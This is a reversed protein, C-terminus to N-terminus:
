PLFLNISWYRECGGLMQGINDEDPGFLIPWETSYCSIAACKKLLFARQMGYPAASFIAEDLQWTEANNAAPTLLEWEREFLATATARDEPSALYNHIFPFPMDTLAVKAPKDSASQEMPRAGLLQWRIAGWCPILAYPLEEYYKLIRTHWFLKSCEFAIHHDIHGGVGLPFFLEAPQLKEFLARIAKAVAKELLKEQEPLRHHFLITSFDKYRKSRFPADTFGLHLPHAGLSQLAQLDDNKRKQYLDKAKNVKESESFLTAVFVELGCQVAQAIFAGCSLVADDLHPSIFLIRKM